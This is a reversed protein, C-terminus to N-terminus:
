GTEVEFGAKRWATYGGNLVLLNRYGRRALVSVGATARNYLGCHVVVPREKPLPLDDYPLRGNEVHLARPLHGSEWESQQRVDLITLPEDQTLRAELEDVTVAKVKEEALGADRWATMGGDLYGVVEDFGIRLLQRLARERAAEDEEVLIVRTGYRLLWGAWTTVPAGVAIGYAGPVHGRWFEPAPRVDVVAVGEEQLKQTQFPTLASLTPLAGLIRPGRRNIPRLEKYYVPYSSLGETARRVFAEESQQQCLPNQAREAGITTTREPSATVNCFSGAGHTPFVGVEDPMRMLRDHISHYLRRALPRTMEPGLLDTRAAGGVLLAGGSFIAQPAEAEEPHIAFAIHEPTHGPTAIVALTSPGLALRAGDRLPSHDYGLDAEASAGVSAATQHAIERAGSVFDNHLHTELVYEISVGLGEAADLYQDVDREPDILAAAGDDPAFVLYASNGLAGDVFPQVRLGGVRM